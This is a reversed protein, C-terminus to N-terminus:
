PRRDPSPPDSTTFGGLHRLVAANMEAAMQNGLTALASLHDSISTAIMERVRAPYPPRPRDFIEAIALDIVHESRVKIGAMVDRLIREATVENGVIMQDIAVNVVGAIASRTRKAHRRRDHRNGLPQSIDILVDM